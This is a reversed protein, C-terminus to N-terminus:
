IGLILLDFVTRGRMAPNTKTSPNNGVSVASAWRFDLAEAGLRAGAASTALDGSVGVCLRARSAAAALVAFDV